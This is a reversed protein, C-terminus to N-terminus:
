QTGPAVSVNGACTFREGAETRRRLAIPGRTAAGKQPEVSSPAEGSLLQNTTDDEQSSIQTAPLVVDNSGLREEIGGAVEGEVEEALSRNSYNSIPSMLTLLLNM